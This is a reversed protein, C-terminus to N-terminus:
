VMWTRQKPLVIRQPEAGRRTAGGFQRITQHEHEDPTPTTVTRTSDPLAIPTPTRTVGPVMSGSPTQMMGGGTCGEGSGMMDDMMNDMDCDRRGDHDMDDDHFGDENVDEVDVCRMDPDRSDPVGDGDSDAYDLPNTQSRAFSGDSPVLITGLELSPEGASVFFHDTLRQGCLFVMSGRSHMDAEGPGQHDFAMVYTQNPPLMLTFRGTSPEADAQFTSGSQGTAHVRFSDGGSASQAAAVGSGQSVATGSVAVSDSGAGADDGSGGGCSAATVAAALVIVQLRWDSNRIAM